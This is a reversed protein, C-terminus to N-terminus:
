ETGFGESAQSVFDNEGRWGVCRHGLTNCVDDLVPRGSQELAQRSSSTANPASGGGWDGDWDSVVSVSWTLYADAYTLGRIREGALGDVAVAAKGSEASRGSQCVGVGTDRGSLRLRSSHFRQLCGARSGIPALVTM